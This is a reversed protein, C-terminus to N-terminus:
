GRLLYWLVAGGTQNAASLFAMSNTCAQVFVQGPHVISCSAAIFTVLLHMSCREVIVGTKRGYQINFKKQAASAAWCLMVVMMQFPYEKVLVSSEGKVNRATSCALSWSM